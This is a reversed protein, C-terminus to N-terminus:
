DIAEDHRNLQRLAMSLSITASVRGPHEPGFAAEWQEAASLLLAAAEDIHGARLQVLGLNSLLRVILPHDPRLLSRRIALAIEFQEVAGPIDGKQFLASGLNNRSEAVELSNEGFAAARVAIAERQMAIAEDFRGQRRLCAGLNNLLVGARDTPPRGAAAREAALLERFRAEAEAYQGEYYLLEALAVAVDVRADADEPLHAFGAEASQLLRRAEPLMGLSMLARGLTQEAAARTLPDAPPSSELARMADRLVDGLRADPGQNGTEAGGIM